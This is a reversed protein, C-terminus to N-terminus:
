AAVKLKEAALAVRNSLPQVVEGALKLVAETNHSSQQVLADFSARVYDAHLKFFETPSKVSSLTKAVTTADEFSKKAYAAADQGLSELGRAAIKSSEVLAEINGKGFETADQLLKQSKDVAGKARDTADTFATQTTATVNEITEMIVEKAAPTAIPAAADVVPAPAVPLPATVADAAPVPAPQIGTPKARSRQPRPPSDVRPRNSGRKAPKSLRDDM